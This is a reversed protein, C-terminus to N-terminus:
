SPTVLDSASLDPLAYYPRESEGVLVGSEDEVWAHAQFDDGPRVGVKFQAPHGHLRLLREAVLARVACTPSWSLAAAARVTWIIEERSFAPGQSQLLPASNTGFVSLIRSLPALRLAVATGNLALWTRLLLRQRRGNLRLFKTLRNM